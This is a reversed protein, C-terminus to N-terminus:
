GSVLRAMFLEPYVSCLGSYLMSLGGILTILALTRSRNTAEKDALVGVAIGAPVSLVSYALSLYSGMYSDRSQADEFGFDKAAASLNPSLLNQSASLAALCVSLLWFTPPVRM